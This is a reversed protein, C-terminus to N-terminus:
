WDRGPRTTCTLGTALGSRHLVGLQSEDHLGALNSQAESRGELAQASSLRLEDDDSAVGRGEALALELVVAHQGLSGDVVERAVIHTSREQVRWTDEVHLTKGAAIAAKV